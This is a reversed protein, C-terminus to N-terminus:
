PAFFPLTSTFYGYSIVTSVEVSTFHKNSASYILVGDPRVTRFMLGLTKAPASLQSFLSDVENATRRTRHNSWMTSGGYFNDLLQM